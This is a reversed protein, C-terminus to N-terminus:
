QSVKGQTFVSSTSTVDKLARPEKPVSRPTMPKPPNPMSKTTTPSLEASSTQPQSIRKLSQTRSRSITVDNSHLPKPTAVSSVVSSNKSDANLKSPMSKVRALKQNKSSANFHIRTQIM